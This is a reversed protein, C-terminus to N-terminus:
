APAENGSSPTLGAEKWFSQLVEFRALGSGKDAQLHKVNHDWVAAMVSAPAAKVWSCELVSLVMYHGMKKIDGMAMFDPSPYVLPLPLFGYPIYLGNNSTM